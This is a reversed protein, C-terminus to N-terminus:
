QASTVLLSRKSKGIREQGRLVIQHRGSSFKKQPAFFGEPPLLTASAYAPVTFSLNLMAEKKEWCIEVSGRATHWSARANTLSGGPRPRFFIHSGGPQEADLEIGAVTRVMWAGIAGYAYHNFSNMSKDQFGKEPTWGDWREWITTAGNKVPFLWSPFTEQELLQYAVDLYGNDELVQCIYPTGVFGTSLHFSRKQIDRVLEAAATHKLKEPILGFHLALVYSTQTKGVLLGDETVFRRQFARVVEQRWANYSYSDAKNGLITAIQSLLQLDYALFATGILDKPTNGERDLSGDLALWDGHGGWKDIDPHSRIRDKCQHLRLYEFFRKMVPYNRELIRRDGYARYIEWPCIIAADSWAPGGDDGVTVKPAVSPISGSLRQADAVDLTWKNFFGRVDRLFSATSIFVQADGTWGLREDRQPCDTPVELFNGKMGWQINKFLQNLLPHSCSFYGTQEMDSYLAIGEVLIIEAKRNSTSIAVYRFGHFTFRPEWTEAANGKCTYHDTCIATRLNDTYLFGNKDLVEAYRIRFHTGPSGCVTIRIRGAINQRLDYISVDRSDSWSRIPNRLPIVEQRRVRPSASATLAIERKPEEVVGRWRSEDYGPSSWNELELRADYSEGMLLDNELIPGPSYKWTSDTVIRLISGDSLEVELQAIFAPRSGYIQREEISVHGCYWGDGLIAGLANQGRMLLATVDYAQVQVRKRYETWGPTFVDHSISQGNIECEYLGLATVYLRARKPSEPLSFDKRLYPAPAGNRPGGILDTSIWSASWDDSKLLSYEWWASESWQGIEGDAAQVRVKWWLRQRAKGVVGGYVVENIKNSEDWGSDWLNGNDRDLTEQSDAVLVRWAKPNAVPEEEPLEWSLIPHLEDIGLPNKFFEVRLRVPRRGLSFKM